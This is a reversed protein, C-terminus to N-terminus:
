SLYQQTLKAGHPISEIVRRKWRALQENSKDNALRRTVLGNHEIERLRQEHLMAAMVLSQRRRKELSRRRESEDVSNSTSKNNSATRRQNKRMEDKIEELTRRDAKGERLEAAPASLQQRRPKKSTTSINSRRSLARRDNAASLQKATEENMRRAAVLRAEYRSEEEATVSTSPPKSVVISPRKKDGSVLQTHQSKDDSKQNQYQNGQRHLKVVQSPRRPLSTLHEIRGSEKESRSEESIEDATGESESKESKLEGEYRIKKLKPCGSGIDELAQSNFCVIFSVDMCKIRM